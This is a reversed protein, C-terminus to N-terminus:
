FPFTPKAVASFHPLVCSDNAARSSASASISPATISRKRWRTVIGAEAERSITRSSGQSSSFLAEERKKENEGSNTLRKVLEALVAAETQTPASACEASQPSPTARPHLVILVDVDGCTEAKRRYSGCGMSLLSSDMASVAARVTEVIEDAESWPMRQLLEDHLRLGM